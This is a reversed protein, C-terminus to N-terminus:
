IKVMRSMRRALLVIRRSDRDRWRRRLRHRWFRCRERLSWPTNAAEFALDLAVDRAHGGLAFGAAILWQAIVVPSM